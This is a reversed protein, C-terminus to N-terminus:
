ASGKTKEDEGGEEEEGEDDNWDEDFPNHVSLRRAAFDETDDSPTRSKAEPSGTTDSPMSGKKILPAALDNGSVSQKSLGAMGMNIYINGEDAHTESERTSELADEDPWEAELFPLYVVIATIDDRYSGEFRRWRDAAEKVLATCSDTANSFGAVIECAEQSPIFEWVGDSAVIIFADGETAPAVPPALTVQVIEPDPIVGVLKCEGDGISRSMALGIRGNAWVRSPRGQSSSSVTGGRAVIREREGPNEPKHDHSLDQAQIAGNVRAGKVCRSDGSAAVWCQDGRMYVITSTTGCTMATRGLEGNLLMEDMKIVNRSICENPDAKLAAADQELMDPISKMCFESAKEGKSGHGDFVCLLAQNYSGNFPWCVVGRDQNIKAASHGRPGPMLGHRTHTGIRSRDFPLSSRRSNNTLRGSGTMEKTQYKVSLRPGREAAKGSRAEEVTPPKKSAPLWPSESQDEVGAQGNDADAGKKEVVVNSANKSGVCGM